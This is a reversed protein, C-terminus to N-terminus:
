NECIYSKNLIYIKTSFSNSIEKPITNKKADLSYLTKCGLASVFPVM